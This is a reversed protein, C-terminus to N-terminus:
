RRLLSRRRGSTSSHIRGWRWWSAPAPHASSILSTRRRCCSNIPVAYGAAEAGWLTFHTEVLSPLIYAVGPASGGLSTFLNASRTIGDLLQRYSVLRPTEDDAGTMLMTLATRYPFRAAGKVFIDYISTAEYRESFPKESEFRIVDTLTAIPYESFASM